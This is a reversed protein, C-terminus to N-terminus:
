PSRMQWAAGCEPCVTCGDKAPAAGTLDYACAPCSLRELAFRIAKMESRRSRSCLLWALVPIFIAATTVEEYRLFVDFWNAARPAARVIVAAGVFGICVIAFSWPAEVGDDSPEEINIHKPHEKRPLLEVPRGRHDHGKSSM